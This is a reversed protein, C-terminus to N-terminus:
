YIQYAAILLRKQNAGSNARETGKLIVTLERSILFNNREDGGALYRLEYGNAISNAVRLVGKPPFRERKYLV